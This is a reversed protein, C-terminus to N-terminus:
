IAQKSVQRVCQGVASDCLTYNSYQVNQNIHLIHPESLPVSTLTPKIPQLATHVQLYIYIYVCMCM